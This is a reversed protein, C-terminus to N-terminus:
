YESPLLITTASRDAETIIRFKTDNLTHYVSLLREGSQLALDNARWDAGVVDGWDGRSHRNLAISREAQATVELAGPTALTRGLPVHFIRVTAAM